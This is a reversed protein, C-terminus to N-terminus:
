NEINKNDFLSILNDRVQELSKYTLKKIDVGPLLQAEEMLSPIVKDDESNKDGVFYISHKGRAAAFGAEFYISSISGIPIIAVFVDSDSLKQFYESPTLRKTEFTEKSPMTESEYFIEDFCGTRRLDTIIKIVDTVFNTYIKGKIFVRVPTSIFLHPKRHPLEGSALKTKIEIKALESEASDLKLKLHNKQEELVQRQQTHLLNILKIFHILLALAGLSIIATIIGSISELFSVIEM